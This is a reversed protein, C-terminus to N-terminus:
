EHATEETQTSAHLSSLLADVEQESLLPENLPEARPTEEGRQMAEAGAGMKRTQGRMHPPVRQPRDSSPKWPTPIGAHTEETGPEPELQEDPEASPIDKRTSDHQYSGDDRARVVEPTTEFPARAPEDELPIPEAERTQGGAEKASQRTARAALITAVRAASSESQAGLAMARQRRHGDMAQGYIYLPLNPWERGVLTFFELETADLDDVCVLVAHIAGDVPRALGALAAYVTDVRQVDFGAQAVATEYESSASSSREVVHLVKLRDRPKM